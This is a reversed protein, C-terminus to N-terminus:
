SPLGNAKRALAALAAFVADAPAAVGARIDSGPIDALPTFRLVGAEMTGVLYNNLAPVRILIADANGARLASVRKALDAHGIDTALWRTDRQKVTISSRVDGSVTVPYFFTQKDQLLTHPDDGSHYAKLSDLTVWFVRVPPELQATAAERATLGAVAPAREALERLTPLAAAAVQTVEKMQNRERDPGQNSQASLSGTILVACLTTTIRKM